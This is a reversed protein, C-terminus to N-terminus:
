IKTQTMCEMCTGVCISRKVDKVRTNVSKAFMNIDSDNQYLVEKNKRTEWWHSGHTNMTHHYECIDWFVYVTPEILDVCGVFFTENKLVKKGRCERAYHGKKQCKYCTVTSTDRTPKKGDQEPKWVNNVVPKHNVAAKKKDPCDFAKHGQQGYERCNGSFYKYGYKKVFFAKNNANEKTKINEFWHDRYFDKIEKYSTKTSGSSATLANKLDKYHKSMKMPRKILVMIEVEDKLRGGGKEDEKNTHEIESFWLLHDEEGPGDDITDVVKAYLDQLDNHEVGDYRTKLKNWIKYVMEEGHHIRVYKLADGQCTMVFWHKQSAEAMKQEKTSLSVGDSELASIWKNKEKL